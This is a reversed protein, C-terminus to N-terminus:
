SDAQMAAQQHGPVVLSGLFMNWTGIPYLGVPLCTEQWCIPSVSLQERLMQHASIMPGAYM